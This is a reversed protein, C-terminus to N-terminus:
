MALEEKQLNNMNYLRINIALESNYGEILDFSVVDNVQPTEYDIDEYKCFLKKGSKSCTIYGYGFTHNLENLIGKNM